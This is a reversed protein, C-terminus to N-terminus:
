MGDVDLDGVPRKEDPKGVSVRYECASKMVGM